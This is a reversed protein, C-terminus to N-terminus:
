RGIARKFSLIFFTVVTHGLEFLELLVIRIKLKVRGMSEFEDEARDKGVEGECLEGGSVENHM